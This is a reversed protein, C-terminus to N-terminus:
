RLWRFARELEGEGDSEYWRGHGLVIREPRWASMREYCARARAKSLVFTVRLDLPVKGDPHLAGGLKAIWHMKPPLRAREFNQILDALLLTRSAGHFFVVETLYSSGEFLLQDVDERWTPPAEDHLDQDFRVEINQQRARERVGPSAWATAEPYARQWAGIHAYHLRNPSVLHRVRGVADLEERLAATLETPSHVFLDGSTLRIVTMRTPFPVSLGYLAMDVIPGDVIWINEGIPKLTSVPPYLMVARDFGSM